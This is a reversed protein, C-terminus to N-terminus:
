SKLDHSLFKNLVPFEIPLGRRVGQAIKQLCDHAHGSKLQLDCHAHNRRASSAVGFDEGVHVAAVFLDQQLAPRFDQLGELM